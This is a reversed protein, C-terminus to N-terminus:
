HGEGTLTWPERVRVTDPDAVLHWPATPLEIIEDLQKDVASPEEIPEEVPAGRKAHDPQETTVEHIELDEAPKTTRKPDNINM